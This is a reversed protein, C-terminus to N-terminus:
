LNNGSAGTLKLSQGNGKRRVSPIDIALKGALYRATTSEMAIFDEPSGESVIQGGHHGAGPGLDIVYDSALMIDKDHEVVLVSNGIKTLERLAKILRQNDRQHLGISPEDMVYTIGTLQSGIQSALRIRQSEGGSLTRTPRDLNLYTLGVDLLFGIRLTIEKVIEASIVKQKDDMKSPLDKIWVYLDDMSMKSLEGIHKEGLKFHLSEKKLRFGNCEPCTVISLFNEAWARIKESTSDKYWRELMRVLGEDTLNTYYDYPINVMEVYKEQDGYLIIDMAKKSIKNVPTNFDFGHQKGLKK